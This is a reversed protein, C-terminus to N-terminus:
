IARTLAHTYATERVPNLAVPGVPTCNRVDGTWREPFNRKARLLVQRRRDLIAKDRGEHRDNPTVFRLASHLHEHNYWAVFRDAWGRAEELSRFPRRPFDPRYKLTRFLAESYPNDDSVRPRSFSTAVGLRQLTSLLTAGKMPGGNDAHLVLKGPKVGEREHAWELLEAAEEGGEDEHVAYGVIKRSWIDVVAYLYYFIGRVCARLYTIDWTWVQRPGTAIHERRPRRRPARSAGRHAMQGREHLVRYLTSESGLYKGEDMLLPVIQKPSLDRFRPTNATAVLADRQQETLKHAPTKRPGRRKDQGGEERRWRGLTRACLGITECAVEVRAGGAVAEDVLEITM